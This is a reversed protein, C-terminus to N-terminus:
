KTLLMRTIDAKEPMEVKWRAAPVVLAQRSIRWPPKPSDRHEGDM